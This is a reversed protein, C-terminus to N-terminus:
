DRRVSVPGSAPLGSHLHGGGSTQSTSTPTPELTATPTPTPELTATPTPTPAPEAATVTITGAMFPHITCYYAYTGPEAFTFSFTDSGGFAGSDFLDTPGSPTGSTATHLVTDKNTWTVTTGVSLSLDPLEFEQISAPVGQSDPAPTVTPTPTPSALTATPTATAEQGGCAAAVLAIGVVALVLPRRFSM